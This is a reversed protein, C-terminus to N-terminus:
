RHIWRRSRPLRTKLCQRGGQDHRRAAAEAAPEEEGERPLTRAHAAAQELLAAFDDEHSYFSEPLVFYERMPRGPMPELNRLPGSRKEVSARLQDPLRVFVRTEFLGAFMHGAAFCAPFGFMQRKECDVGQIARDLLAVLGSPAKQWKM